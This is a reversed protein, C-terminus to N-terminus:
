PLHRKGWPIQARGYSFKNNGSFTTKKEQPVKKVGQALQKKPYKM